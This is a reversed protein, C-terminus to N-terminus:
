SIKALVEQSGAACIQLPRWRGRLIQIRICHRRSVLNVFAKLLFSSLRRAATLKCERM